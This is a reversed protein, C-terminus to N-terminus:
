YIGRVIERVVRDTYVTFLEGCYFGGSTQLVELPVPACVRRGEQTRVVGTNKNFIVYRYNNQAGREDILICKVEM